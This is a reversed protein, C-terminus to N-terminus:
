KLIEQLSVPIHLGAFLKVSCGLVLLHINVRCLMDLSATQTQSLIELVVSFHDLPIISISIIM